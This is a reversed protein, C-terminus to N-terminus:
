QFQFVTTLFEVVARIRGLHRLDKHYVMWVKHSPLDVQKFIPVLEPNIPCFIHPQISIGVGSITARLRTITNDSRLVCSSLNSHEILWQNEPLTSLQDGYSIIRHNKLESENAPSGYRKIYNSSSYLGLLMRGLNKVVLNADKPRFLRIAIDAEGKTLNAVNSSVNLILNIHPYQHYFDPLLPTLVELCLGEPLAVRVTGSFELKEGQIKRQVTLVSSQMAQTQEFVFEGEETLILGKVSRQFLKTGLAAELADIHRGVTPQNSGLKKAASTLSGTEATIIFYRFDDWDLSNM